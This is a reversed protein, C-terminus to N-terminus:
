PLAEGSDTRPRGGAIAMPRKPNLSRTEPTGAPGTKLLRYIFLTGFSFILLYILTFFILSATTAGV